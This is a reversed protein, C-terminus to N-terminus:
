VMEGFGVPQEIVDRPAPNLIGSIRAVLFELWIM